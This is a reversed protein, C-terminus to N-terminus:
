CDKGKEACLYANITLDGFRKGNKRVPLTFEWFM